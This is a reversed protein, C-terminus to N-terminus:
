KEATRAGSRVMSSTEKETERVNRKTLKFCLKCRTDNPRPKRLQQYIQKGCKTIGTCSYLNINVDFVSVFIHLKDRRGGDYHETTYKGPKAPTAHRKFPYVTTM